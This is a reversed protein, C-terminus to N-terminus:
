GQKKLHLRLDGYGNSAGNPAPEWEVVFVTDPYFALVDEPFVFELWNYKIERVLKGNEFFLFRRIEETGIPEVDFEYGSIEKIVKGNDYSHLDNYAVDWTFDLIEGFTIEGHEKAYEEINYQYNPSPTCGVCLIVSLVLVGMIKMAVHKM